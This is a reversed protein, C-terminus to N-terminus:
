DVQKPRTKQLANIIEAQINKPLDFVDFFQIKPTQSSQDFEIKFYDRIRCKKFYANFEIEINSVEEDFDKLWQDILKEM